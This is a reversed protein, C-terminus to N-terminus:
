EVAGESELLVGDKWWEVRQWATAQIVTTPGWTGVTFGRACALMFREPRTDSVAPMVGFGEPIPRAELSSYHGKPMALFPCARLAFIACERHMAPDTFLRNEFCMPGGVFWKKLGKLSGGCLACCPRSVAEEWRDLDSLRFDPTGDALILVTFPIPLGRRDRPRCALRPPIPPLKM